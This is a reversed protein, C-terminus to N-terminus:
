RVRDRKEFIVNHCEDIVNEYYKILEEKSMKMLIHADETKVIRLNDVTNM